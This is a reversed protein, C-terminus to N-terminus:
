APFLTQTNVLALRAQRIKEITEDDNAFKPSILDIQEIVKTLFERMGRPHIEPDMTIKETYGTISADGHVTWLAILLDRISTDIAHHDLFPVRIDGIVHIM